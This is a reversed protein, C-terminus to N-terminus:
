DGGHKALRLLAQKLQADECNQATQKILQGSSPSLTPGIAHDKVVSVAQLDLKIAINKIYMFEPLTGLKKSLDPALFRLRAALSQNAVFLTLTGNEFGAVKFAMWPLQTQVIKELNNLYNSYKRFANLLKSQHMIDAVSLGKLKCMRPKSSRNFSYRPAKKGDTTSSDNNM